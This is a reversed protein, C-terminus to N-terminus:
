ETPFRGRRRPRSAARERRSRGASRAPAFRRPRTRPEGALFRCIDGRCARIRARECGNRTDKKKIQHKKRICLASHFSRCPEAIVETDSMRMPM